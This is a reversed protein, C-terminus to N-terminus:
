WLYPFLIRFGVFYELWGGRKLPSSDKADSPIGNTGYEVQSATLLGERRCENKGDSQM